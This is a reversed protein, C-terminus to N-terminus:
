RRNALLVVVAIGALVVLAMIALVGLVLLLLPVLAVLVQSAAVVWLTQRVGDARITRGVFLYFVLTAAAVVLALWVPIIGVVVLLGEAVALWLALQLRRSRLWRGSRSSGHELAPRLAEV